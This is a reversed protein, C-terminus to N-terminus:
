TAWKGESCFSCVSPKSLYDTVEVGDFTTWQKGDYTTYSGPRALAEHGCTPCKRVALVVGYGGCTFCGTGKHKRQCKVPNM